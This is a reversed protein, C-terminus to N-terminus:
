HRVLNFLAHFRTADWSPDVLKYLISRWDDPELNTIESLDQACNDITRQVKEDRKRNREAEFGNHDM